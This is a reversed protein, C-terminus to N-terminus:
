AGARKEVSLTKAVDEAFSEVDVRARDVCGDDAFVSVGGDGDPAGRLYGPQREGKGPASARGRMLIEEDGDALGPGATAAEFAVGAEGDGGADRADALRDETVLAATRM